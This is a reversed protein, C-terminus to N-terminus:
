GSGARSPGEPAACWSPLGQVRAESGEGDQRAEVEFVRLNWLREFCPKEANIYVQNGVRARETGCPLVRLVSASFVDRGRM